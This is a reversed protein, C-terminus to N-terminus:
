HNILKLVQMKKKASKIEHIALLFNYKKDNEEKADYDYVAPLKDMWKRIAEPNHPNHNKPFYGASIPIDHQNTM